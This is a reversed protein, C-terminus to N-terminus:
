QPNGAFERRKKYRRLFKPWGEAFLRNTGDDPVVVPNGQILSWRVVHKRGRYNRFDKDPATALVDRIMNRLTVQDRKISYIGKAHQGIYRFAEKTQQILSENKADAVNESLVLDLNGYPTLSWLNNPVYGPQVGPAGRKSPPITPPQYNVDQVAADNQTSVPVGLASRSVAGPVGSTNQLVEGVKAKYYDAVSEDKRARAESERKESPTELMQMYRGLNQGMSVLDRRRPAERRKQPGFLLPQQQSPQIGLLALRHMGHKKAAASIDDMRMQVGSEQLKRQRHLQYWNMDQSVHDLRGQKNNLAGFISAAGMAVAPWM